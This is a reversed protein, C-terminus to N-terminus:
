AAFALGLSSLKRRLLYFDFWLGQGTRSFPRLSYAKREGLIFQRKLFKM